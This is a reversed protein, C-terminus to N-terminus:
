RNFTFMQTFIVSTQQPKQHNKQSTFLETVFFVTVAKKGCFFIGTLSVDISYKSAPHVM